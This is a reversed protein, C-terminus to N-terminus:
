SQGEEEDLHGEEPFVAKGERVLDEFEIATWTSEHDARLQKRSRAAEQAEVWEGLAYGSPTRYGRPVRMTRNADMYTQLHRFGEDWAPDAEYESFGLRLLEMYREQSLRDHRADRRRAAVWKGLAFGDADRYQAPVEAHGREEAFKSLARVGRSWATEGVVVVAVQMSLARAYAAVASLRPEEDGREFRAVRSPDTGMAEAVERQTLGLRQRMWTLQAILDGADQRGQQTTTERMYAIM